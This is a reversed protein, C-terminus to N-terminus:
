RELVRRRRRRRHYWCSGLRRNKQVGCTVGVVAAGVLGLLLGTALHLGGLHSSFLDSSPLVPDM